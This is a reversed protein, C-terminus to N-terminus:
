SAEDEKKAEWIIVTVVLFSVGLQMASEHNGMLSMVAGMALAVLRMVRLFLIMLRDVLRYGGCDGNGSGVDPLLDADPLSANHVGTLTQGLYISYSPFTLYCNPSPKKM